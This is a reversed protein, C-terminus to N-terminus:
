RVAELTQRFAELRTLLNRSDESSYDTELRLYKLGHDKLPQEVTFSELDFPHCGKLVQFVVGEFDGQRAPGLINNIRRDNDAFTPCLCGQHYRQALATMLGFESSDSYSVGGPLLRESSCMDDAAVALGAEELLNPLKFNPFFIPSGALFIRRGKIPHGSELDPLLKKIAGSWREPGDLFFTNAMLMFWVAPVRGQRRLAALASLARWAEHYVGISASIKHRDIRRGTLQELFKKLRYVENLWLEQGEPGDKLHPLELWHLPAGPEVGTLKLMEPFKVMWDCTTPLVWAQHGQVGSTQCAGLVSRLMPCMLAPFGQAALTGAAYSGSFIKFPALGAAHILELPAQLCLLNVAARGTRASAAAPTLGGEVLELFYDYGPLRDPRNRLAELARASEAATKEATKKLFRERRDDRIAESM